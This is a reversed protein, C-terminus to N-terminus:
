APARRTCHAFRTPASTAPSSTAFVSGFSQNLEISEDHLERAEVLNGSMRAAVAQMHVPMRELREDGATRARARAEDALERVRTFDNERLAVRALMCLADVQGAHDRDREAATLAEGSLRRAKENDGSRFADLAEEYDGM